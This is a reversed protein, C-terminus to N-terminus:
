SFDTKLNFNRFKSPPCKENNELLRGHFDTFGLTEIYNIFIVKGFYIKNKTQTCM